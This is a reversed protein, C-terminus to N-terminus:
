KVTYLKPPRYSVKEVYKNTEKLWDKRKIMKHFNGKDVKTQLVLEYIYHIDDITFFEGLLSRIVQPNLAEIHERLDNMLKSNTRIDFVKFEEAKSEFIDEYDVVVYYSIIVETDSENVELLHSAFSNAVYNQVIGELENTLNSAYLVKQTNSVIDVGDFSVLTVRM